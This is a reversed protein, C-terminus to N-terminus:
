GAYNDVGYLAEKSQTSTAVGAVYIPVVLNTSGDPNSPSTVLGRVDNTTASPTTTVGVSTASVTLVTGGYSPSLLYGKDAIYYPLGFINTTGVSLNQGATGTITVSRIYKFAKPITNSSTAVAGTYSSVMPQKGYDFGSVTVTVSSSTSAATVNVCRPVDLEIVAVEGEGPVNITTSTTVVVSGSTLPSLTMAGGAGTSQSLAICNAYAGLPVIDYVYIPSLQPLGGLVQSYAQAEIGLNQGTRVQDNFTTM